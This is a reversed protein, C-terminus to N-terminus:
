TIDFFYSDEVCRCVNNNIRLVVTRHHKVNIDTMKTLTEPTMFTRSNHRSQMDLVFDNLSFVDAGCVPARSRRSLFDSKLLHRNKIRHSFWYVIQFKIINKNKKINRIIILQNKILLKLYESWCKNVFHWKTSSTFCM